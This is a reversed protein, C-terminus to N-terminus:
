FYRAVLGYGANEMPIPIKVKYGNGPAEQMVQGRMDQMREVVIDRNGEPFILEVRDGVAFKNKVEIETLGTAGDYYRIEGCFLQQRKSYDTIACSM